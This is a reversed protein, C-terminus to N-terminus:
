VYKTRAVCHIDGTRGIWLQTVIDRALCRSGETSTNERFVRFM